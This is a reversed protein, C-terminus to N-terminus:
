LHQTTYVFAAATGSVFVLKKQPPPPAIRELKAPNKQSKEQGETM